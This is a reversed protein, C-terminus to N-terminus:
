LFNLVKGPSKLAWLKRWFRGDTYMREGQIRQYYSRVSFKGKDDFLWFWSDETRRMPIPIKRILKSDRENCIDQVIEMDWDTQTENLLGCVQIDKLQEPIPTTIYGNEPCPLWPVQWVLTSKGDRIKRQCGHSVSEQAELISRWVYSPNPGLDANLFDKNPFYRAKMQQTVLPNNNNILRWGQKALMAVNFNRLKKFGLGGGEKADCMRDWSLWKIRKGSKGHNWWFANM